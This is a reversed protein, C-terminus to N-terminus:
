NKGADNTLFVMIEENLDQCGQRFDIPRLQLPTSGAENQKM